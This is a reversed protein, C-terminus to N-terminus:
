DRYHSYLRVVTVGADRLFRSRRWLLPEMADSSLAVLDIPATLAEQPPRIPLGDLSQGHRAPDDDLVLTLVIGKGELEKRFPLIKHTHQGAGYLAVRVTTRAGLSPTVARILREVAANYPGAYDDRGSFLIRLARAQEPATERWVSPAVRALRQELSVSPGTRALVSQYFEVRAQAQRAPDFVERVRHYAALGLAAARPPDDLLAVIADALARPNEPPVVVGTEGMMEVMGSDAGVVATRGAAMAELCVNPFNEFISPFACFAAERYYGFLRDAPCNDVFEVRGAAGAPMTATLYERMSGGGPATTTDGGVFLFRADPVKEGVLSAAHLLDVVGKRFELRGVYLVTRGRPPAYDHLVDAASYPHHVVRAPRELAVGAEIRRAMPTCPACVGDALALELKELLQGPLPPQRNIEQLFWTPTHCNVVSPTTWRWDMLLPWGPAEWEPFEVIDLRHDELFQLLQERFLDAAYFWRNATTWEGTLATRTADPPAWLMRHVHVGPPDATADSPGTAVTFVHVEHGLAALARSVQHVYTGVGGGFFPPYERSVLGIIM